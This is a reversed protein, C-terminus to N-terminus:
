FLIFDWSSSSIRRVGESISLKLSFTLFETRKDQLWAALDALIRSLEFISDDREKVGLFPFFFSM